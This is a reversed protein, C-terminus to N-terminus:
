LKGPNFLIMQVTNTNKRSSKNVIQILLNTAMSSSPLSNSTLGPATLNTPCLYVTYLATSAVASEQGQEDFYRVPNPPVFRPPTGTWEALLCEGTLRQAIQSQVTTDISKRFTQLGLPVMGLLSIMAFSVIGLALVVEVLSFASSCATVNCRWRLM